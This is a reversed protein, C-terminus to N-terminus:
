VIEGEIAFKPEWSKIIEIQNDTLNVKAGITKIADDASSKGSQVGSKWRMKLIEGGDGITDSIMKYFEDDTCYKLPEPESNTPLPNIEKELPIDQSEEAISLGRLADPFSDRLSFGRARMQLMRSPYNTWPGSKGFLGALKADAVSFKGTTASKGRRKVICVATLREGDGEFFETIDECDPRGIVLAKAADGWISPRGGIVAINQLAQIGPIGLDSGWQMAILCNGPKGKFDKPVMDSDALVQALRWAEDFNTPMPLFSKTEVAIENSM